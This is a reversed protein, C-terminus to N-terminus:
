AEEEILEMQKDADLAKGAQQMGRVAMILDALVHSSVEVKTEAPDDCRALDIEDLSKVLVVANSVVMDVRPRSPTKKPDAAKATVREKGMDKAAVKRRELEAGADEGHDRALKVAETASIVGTEVAQIVEENASALLIHQDVHALSKGVESAIEQRTMGFEDRLSLYTRGIQVPKLKLQSNSSVVRAKRQAPTGEFKVVSVYGDFKAPFAAAFDKYGWYRCEGDVLEIVGSEPNVWVELAPVPKNDALSGAISAIHERVEDDKFDRENFGDVIKISDLLVRISDGRKAALNSKDSAISNLTFTM